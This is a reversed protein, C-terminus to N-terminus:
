QQLQSQQIDQGAFQSVQALYRKQLEYILRM